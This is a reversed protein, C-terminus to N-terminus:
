RYELIKEGAYKSHIVLVPKNTTVGCVQANINFESATALFNEVDQQQLVVLVGQGGNWVRYAEQDSMGSWQACRRMIPPPDFLSHLNAGLGLPALNDQFFKGVIGGGTIHSIVTAEIRPGGYWGNVTTLFHDYLVSPKAAARIFSSAEQDKWWEKGFRQRLAARVASIGNSRFGQEQLAVVTQGPRVKEGTILKDPHNVGLICGGWNFKTTAEPDESGVCLGLEATEGGLLVLREKVAAFGLGILAQQFLNFRITGSAGLNAIDLINWFVLPLGGHRVLDTNAMALLDYAATELALAQNILITKTGIGDVAGVMFYGEPLGGFVFGRPGRFHGRSYDTVRVFPSNKWSERSIEHAYASFKNGADLDVGSRAYVSM